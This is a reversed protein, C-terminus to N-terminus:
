KGMGDARAALTEQMLPKQMVHDFYIAGQGMGGIRAALILHPLPQQM